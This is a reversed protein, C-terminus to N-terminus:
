RQMLSKVCHGGIDMGGRHIGDGRLGVEAVDDLRQLVSAHEDVGVNISAKWAIVNMLVQEGGEHAQDALKPMYRHTTGGKENPLDVSPRPRIAFTLAESGDDHAGDAIVLCGGHRGTTTLPALPQLPTEVEILRQGRRLPLAQPRLRHQGAFNVLEGVTCPADAQDRRRFRGREVDGRDQTQDIVDRTGLRDGLHEPVDLRRDFLERRLGIRVPVHGLRVRLVHALERLFHEVERVRVWIVPGNCCHQM